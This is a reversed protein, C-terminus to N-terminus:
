WGYGYVTLGVEEDAELSHVATRDDLVVQAVGYDSGGVQTFEDAEIRRGDLHVTTGQVAIISAFNLAYSTPATFLYSTRFQEVPISLSMSPDGLIGGGPLA